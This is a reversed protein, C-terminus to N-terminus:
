RLGKATEHSRCRVRVPATPSRRARSTPVRRPGVGVFAYSPCRAPPFDGICRRAHPIVTWTGRIEIAPAPGDLQLALNVIAPGDRAVRVGTRKLSRGQYYATVSYSGLPLDDIRYRGTGDTIAGRSGPVGPGVASVVVGELPSGGRAAVVRGHLTRTARCDIEPAASSAPASPRPSAGGCSAALAAISIVRLM